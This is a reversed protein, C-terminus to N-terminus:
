DLRLVCGINNMNKLFLPNTIGILYNLHSSVGNKINNFSKDFITLYPWSKGMFSIPFILSELCYILDSSISPSDSIVILSKNLIVIEWMKFIVDIKNVGLVSYLNLDM